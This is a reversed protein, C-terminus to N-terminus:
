GNSRWFLNIATPRTQAMTECIRSIRKYFEAYTKVATGLGGLAIGM